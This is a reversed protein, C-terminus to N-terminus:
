SVGWIDRNHVEKGKAGNQCNQNTEALGSLQCWQRPHFLAINQIMYTYSNCILTLCTLFADHVDCDNM